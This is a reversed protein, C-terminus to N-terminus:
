AHHSPTTRSGPPLNELTGEPERVLVAAADPEIRLTDDGLNSTRVDVTGATRGPLVVLAAVPGAPPALRPLAEPGLVYLATALADAAAATPALVTASLVGEAPLGSRPDLIHGIRRGRDVFFQTGSGSTGLARDVLALTALRRGPKLPHGIGVPWGARGTGGPGHTGAARVSSQGGHVLVSGVGGAGLFDMMRDLAWGKGIAGPNLEVGARAFRVRRGPEDLEVLHMGSAERAAALLEPTPTRGQRRLFGWCRVLSGAAPDFGGGTREHLARAELLLAFLEPSVPQWGAAATANLRALESGERYISIRAEIADVLDLAEVGLPTADAFEGANFAVEFRCAMAERGVVLTHLDAAAM